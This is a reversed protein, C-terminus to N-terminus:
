PSTESELISMLAWVAGLQLSLHLVHLNEFMNHLAVSAIVGICGIAVGRWPGAHLTRLTVLAQRCVLGLLTLYSLLGLLGMEAASHLYYNHAHGQSTYWPHLAYPQISGGLQSEYARTFNGAGVGTLPNRVFMQWGAQIHAMREVVAFNDPTIMVTRVDFLRISRTISEVRSSVAAPLLGGGGAIILLVVAVAAIAVGRVVRRRLPPGLGDVLALLMAAGGGLAGVWGGRSFSAALAALLLAAVSGGVSVLPNRVINWALGGLATIRLRQAQPLSRWAHTPRSVGALVVGLALPWAMNLYGAFSNPQGITGYARVFRGGAIAFSPPGDGTAFQWLGLVAGALPALLLCGLLGATRWQWTRANGNAPRLTNFALLYILAAGGWRVLEKVSELQSFPTFVLSASVACLLLGFGVGIRGFRVLREPASLTHLGWSGTALLLAAQTYSLGGPLSVLEQLPVSLIAAYLAWVPDVLALTLVVGGGVLLAAFRLPLLTLLLILTLGLLGLWAVRRHWGGLSPTTLMPSHM